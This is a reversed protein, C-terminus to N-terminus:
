QSTCLFLTVRRLARDLGIGFFFTVVRPPAPRATGRCVGALAGSRCDWSAHCILKPGSVQALDEGLPLAPFSNRSVCVWEGRTCRPRGAFASHSVAYFPSGIVTLGGASIYPKWQEPLKTAYTEGGRAQTIKQEPAIGLAELRGSDVFEVHGDAFLVNTGDASQLLSHDYAVVATPPLDKTTKGGATCKVNMMLFSGVPMGKWDIPDVYPELKELDARLKAIDTREAFDVTPFKM